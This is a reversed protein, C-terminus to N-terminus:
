FQSNFIQSRSKERDDFATAPESEDDDSFQQGSLPDVFQQVLAVLEAAGEALGNGRGLALIARARRYAPRSAL